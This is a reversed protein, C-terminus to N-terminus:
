DSSSAPPGHLVEHLLSVNRELTDILKNVRSLQLKLDPFQQVVVVHRRRKLWRVEEALADHAHQMRTLPLTRGAM